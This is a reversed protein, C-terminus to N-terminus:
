DSLLARFRPHRVLADSVRTAMARSGSDTFHVSDTFHAPDGPIDDEGEILVADTEMAVERVIDNYRRYAAVISRPHLFPIYFLASSSADMQREESQDERPQVSFTAVAVVKAHRQATRILQVLDSRYAQGISRPDFELRRDPSKAIQQAAILRLNKEVLYWLLSYRSPWSVVEIRESVILGRSAALRRMEGSLDNAAEYIVIVDPALPAVRYELSKRISELTYGPVGANVYDFRKHRFARELDQVVLHPWVHDNSSVEACWTTSAGLFAVRLTNAPKPVVIEPGRFGLASVKVRGDSFGAVPVRLNLRPDIAYQDEIRTASGYKLQQRVRV